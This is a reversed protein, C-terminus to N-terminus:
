YTPWRKGGQLEGAPGENPPAFRLEFRTGAGSRSEVRVAIAEMEAVHRVTALGLGSSEKNHRVAERTRYYEDFIHPLKEAEIGIGNDAITVVPGTEGDRCRVRVRGGRHSYSIANSLLNAFLMKLHDEAGITCATQLQQEIVVDHEQAWSEVHAICEALLDKVDLRARPLPEQSTSRLNALQLMDQIERALRRSRAAIREILRAAKEPLTGCYGKQLLQANAHIAAFPVKLEHTTLLMHRTREDQAALLRRNRDALEEDRQRVMASLHSTLYWVVLFIILVSVFNVTAVGLSQSTPQWPRSDVFISAAPLVDTIEAAICTSYLACALLTVLMSERPSFFICALVVHLLYAFPSVTVRSGVFHVVATLIFLDLVIQCWLNARAGRPQPRGRIRRAHLLFTLNNVTLIGATVFAWMDRGHLGIRQVLGTMGLLAFAMLIAIVLWRLRCCWVVNKLLM